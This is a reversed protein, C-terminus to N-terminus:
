RTLSSLCHTLSACSRFRPGPRKLCHQINDNAQEAGARYSAGSETVQPPACCARQLRCGLRRGMLPGGGAAAAAPGPAGFRELDRRTEVPGRRGPNPAESPRCRCVAATDPVPEGLKRGQAARYPGSLRLARTSLGESDAQRPQVRPGNARSRGRPTRAVCQSASRTLSGM